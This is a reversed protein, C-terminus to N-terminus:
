SVSTIAFNDCGVCIEFSRFNGVINVRKQFSEIMVYARDPVTKRIEKERLERCGSLLHVPFIRPFLLFLVGETTRFTLALRRFHDTFFGLALLFNFNMFAELPMSNFNM